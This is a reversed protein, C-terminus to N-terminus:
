ETPGRVDDFGRWFYNRNSWKKYKRLQEEEEWKKKEEPTMSKYCIGGIIFILLYIGIYIFLSDM